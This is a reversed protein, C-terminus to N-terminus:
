RCRAVTATAMAAIGEGRGTFGLRETTTAKVNVRTPDLELLRALEARMAERHPGVKPRECIVTVDVADLRGGRERIEALARELFIRSAAGKWQPDSPPFLQGIDGAAVAGLMADTLAHMAVDADSHGVLGQDHPIPVGCLMVSDGPGFAHVDFGHGVSTWTPAAAEIMAELMDKDDPTTLKHLAMSGPTAVTRLGALRALAIDDTAQVDAHARHAALIQALRFGQPTQRRLLGSRDIEPGFGDGDQAATTDALPLARAAAGAGGDLAALVAAIVPAPVLPRAADHILVYEPPAPTVAALAELGNRVSEQRTAGGPVALAIPRGASAQRFEAESEPAYVCCVADIGPAALFADIARALPTVGLLPQYQKPAAGGFRDGRGAAMILAAAQKAAM